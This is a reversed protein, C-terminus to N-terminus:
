NGLVFGTQVPSESHDPAETLIADFVKSFALAFADEVERMTPPNGVLEAISTAPADPVGCPVIAEFWSLDTTVNLAVGHSTVGRQVRVGLAAVKAGGVWIGPKGAARGGGIGITDLAMILTSELSRVYNTPPIRRARLNLIPYAVLQGPGHFTIDGGRDADVVRAGRAELLEAPALLNRRGGRAGMTYIPPHELLALREPSRGERVSEASRRQWDIAAEYEILGFRHLLISATPGEANM